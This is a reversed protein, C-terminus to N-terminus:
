YIDALGLRRRLQQEVEKAADPSKVTEVKMTKGGKLAMLIDYRWGKTPMPTRDLRTGEGSSALNRPFVLFGGTRSWWSERCVSSVRVVDSHAIRQKIPLGLSFLRLQRTVEGDQHPISTQWGFGFHPSITMGGDAPKHSTKGMGQGECGDRSIVM